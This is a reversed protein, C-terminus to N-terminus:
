TTELNVIVDKQNVYTSFGETDDIQLITHYVSNALDYKLM